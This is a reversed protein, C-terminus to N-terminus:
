REQAIGGKSPEDHSGLREDLLYTLRGFGEYYEKTPIGFYHITRGSILVTGLGDQSLLRHITGVETDM